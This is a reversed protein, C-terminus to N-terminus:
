FSASIKRKRTTAEGSLLEREAIEINQLDRAITEPDEDDEVFLYSEIIDLILQQKRNDLYTIKEQIKMALDM